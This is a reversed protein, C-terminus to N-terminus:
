KCQSRFYSHLEGTSPQKAARTSPGAAAATAVRAAAVVIDLILRM